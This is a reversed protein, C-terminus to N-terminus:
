RAVTTRPSARGDPSDDSSFLRITVSIRSAARADARLAQVIRSDEGARRRGARDEGTVRGRARWESVTM